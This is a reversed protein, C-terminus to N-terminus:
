SDPDKLKEAMRRRAAAFAEPLKADYAPRIFPRAPVYVPKALRKRTPVWKGDILRFKNVRWHGYEILHWHPAARKNVGIQYIQREATSRKDDHWRYIAASLQGSDKPVRQKVENYLVLAGQHAAPRLADAVRQQLQDLGALLGADATSISVSERGFQRASKSRAM